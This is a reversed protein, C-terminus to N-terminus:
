PTTSPEPSSYGPRWTGREILEAAIQQVRPWHHTLVAHATKQSLGHGALSVGFHPALLQAALQWDQSRPRYLVGAWPLGAHILEAVIGAHMVAAAQAAALPRDYDVPTADAIETLDWHALGGRETASAGTPTIGVWEMLVVHGAEHHATRALDPGRLEPPVEILPHIRRLETTPPLKM